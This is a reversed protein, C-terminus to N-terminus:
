GLLEQLMGQPLELDLDRAAQAVAEAMMRQAADLAVNCAEAVLEEAQTRTAADPMGLGALVAPGLEISVIRLRGNATARVAGAGAEGVVTRRSVEDRM